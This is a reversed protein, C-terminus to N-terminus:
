LRPRARAQSYQASDVVELRADIGLKQLNSVFAQGLRGAHTPASANFLFDLRM